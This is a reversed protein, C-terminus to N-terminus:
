RNNICSINQLSNTIWLRPFSLLFVTSSSNSLSPSLLLHFSDLFFLNCVLFMKYQHERYLKLRHIPLRSLLLQGYPIVTTGQEQDSSLYSERIWDQKLVLELFSPTVEELCIIDADSKKLIDLLFPYRIHSHIRDKEFDDFLVNWTIARIRDQQINNNNNSSNDDKENETNSIPIWQESGKDYRYPSLPKTYPYRIRGPPINNNNNSNSNSNSNSDNPISHNPIDHAQIRGVKGLPISYHIDFPTDGARAILYIQDVTFEITKWAAKFKNKNEM